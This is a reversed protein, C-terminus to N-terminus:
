WDEVAPEIAGEARMKQAKHALGDRIRRLEDTLQDPAIRQMVSEAQAPREEQEILIKALQLRVQPIRQDYRKLYHVMLPLSEVWLKQKHYAGILKLFDGAPLSWDVYERQMRQHAAYALQPQGEDILHRIQDLAMAQRQAVLEPTLKEEPEKRVRRRGERRGLVAFLDYGECDVWDLKLMLAGIVTGIGAGLLHLFSSSVSMSVMALVFEIALVIGAYTMIGMEFAWVYGLFLVCSVDNRPAWLLTIVVLGFVIASAGYSGGGDAWLMLTQELACEGVGIAFFILLFRWWGVKGEVILGLGWLVAMNGLLHIFDGHIFNSTVWEWPRFKGYHLIWPDLIREWRQRPDEPEYDDHEEPFLFEEATPTDELAQQQEHLSTMTCALFVYVNLVILGITAFPWHYLPADTNYPILM